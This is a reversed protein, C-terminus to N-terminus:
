LLFEKALKEIEITNIPQNKTETSIILKQGTFYGHQNYIHIKGVANTAYEPEDLLGFHEWLFEQRTRINLCTFDPYFIKSGLKVPQEYRYPINLRFLTDAILNESKSRVKEGNVTVHISDNEAILKPKYKLKKWNDVFQETTMIKPQINLKRPKPTKEYIATIKDPSYIKRCKNLIKLQRELERKLKKNYDRLLIEEVLPRQNKNLYEGNRDKCNKILYYQPCKHKYSVRIYGKPATELEKDVKTLIKELEEIKQNLFQKLQM